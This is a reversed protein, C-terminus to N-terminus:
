ANRWESYVHNYVTLTALATKEWSFKAVNELGKKRLESRQSEDGLVQLIKDTMEDVSLPDFFVAAEGAVEPLAGASSCVVPVGAQQAELVPLGFGEYLTPLVFVDAGALLPSVHETPVYGTVIIGGPLELQNVNPPLHGIMVLKCSIKKKIKEYADLLRPINKHKSGGGFAVIYSGSIRYQEKIRSPDEPSLFFRGSKPGLWTVSVKDPHIKLESCIAKKSFNSITIVAKAKRISWTSFFRLVNRKVFRMDYGVARYNLDPVTVIHPCPTLLPGVYGLSHLLDIKNKKLLEPFCFQEFFYRRARNTARVPCVVRSFHPAKPMGWNVSEENLFVIFENEKDVQELGYLLGAAYTETGGVVGPILYLLNIGIRMANEIGNV